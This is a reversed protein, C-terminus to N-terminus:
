SSAWGIETPHFPPLCTKGLPYIDWGMKFALSFVDIGIGEMSPRSRLDYKCPVGLTLAVCSEDPCFAPKCPGSALGLALYYGDYFAAAEVKSAIEFVKLRYTRDTKANLLKKLPIELKFLIAHRYKGLTKRWFDVDPLYPPCNVNTGYWNCKPAICKARVREDLKIMSATVIKADSAGLKVAIDRYRNLDKRSVKSLTERCIRRVM